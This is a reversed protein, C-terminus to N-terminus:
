KQGEQRFREKLKLLLLHGKRYQRTVLESRTYEKKGNEYRGTKHKTTGQNLKAKTTTSPSLSTGEAIAGLTDNHRAEAVSLQEDQVYLSYYEMNM